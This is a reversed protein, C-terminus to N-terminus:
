RCCTSSLLDVLVPRRCCTSSLLDVVCLDVVVPRRCCTSSLLDVVFSRRCYTSSLLDVVIFRCCLTQLCLSQRSSRWSPWVVCACVCLCGYIVCICEAICSIIDSDPRCPTVDNYRWHYSWTLAQFTEAFSLVTPCCVKVLVYKCTPILWRESWM